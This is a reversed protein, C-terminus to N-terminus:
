QKLLFIPIFNIKSLFGIKLCFLLFIPSPFFSLFYKTFFEMMFNPKRHPLPVSVITEIEFFIRIKISFDNGFFNEDNAQSGLIVSPSHSRTNKWAYFQAQFSAIWIKPPKLVSTHDKGLSAIVGFLWNNCSLIKMWLSESFSVSLISKLVLHGSFGNDDKIM